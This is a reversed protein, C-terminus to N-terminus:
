FRRKEVPDGSCEKTLKVSRCCFCANCDSCWDKPYVRAKETGMSNITRPITHSPHIALQEM